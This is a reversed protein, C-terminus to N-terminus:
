EGIMKGIKLKNKADEIAEGAMRALLKMGERSFRFAGFVALHGREWIGSAPALDCGGEWLFFTVVGRSSSPFAGDQGPEAMAAGGCWRSGGGGRWM